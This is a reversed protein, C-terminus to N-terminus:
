MREVNSWTNWRAAGNMSGGTPSFGRLKLVQAYEAAIRSPLPAYALVSSCFSESYLPVTNGAFLYVFYEIM